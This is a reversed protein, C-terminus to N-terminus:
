ELLPQLCLTNKHKLHKILTQVLHEKSLLVQPLTVYNNFKIEKKFNDYGETLNLLNWKEVVQHFYSESDEETAYEHSVKHFVDVDINAIREAFPM